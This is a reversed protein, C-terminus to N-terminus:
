SSRADAAAAMTQLREFQETDSLENFSKDGSPGDSPASGGISLKSKLNGNESELEAIREQLSSSAQAKGRMSVIDVADSIGRSYTALVPKEIILRQVQQYLESSQDELEPHAKASENFNNKWAVKFSEDVDDSFEKEAQGRVESARKEAEKAMELDGDQTFSEAANEYDKASMGREDLFREQPSAENLKRRMAELEEREERMSEKESNIKRWAKNARSLDKDSKDLVEGSKLSSDSEPEKAPESVPPSEAIPPAEKPESTPEPEVRAEVPPPEPAPFDEVADQEAAMKQLQELTIDQEEPM